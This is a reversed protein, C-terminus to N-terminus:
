VNRAPRARICLAGALMAYRTKRPSGSAKGFMKKHKEILQKAALKPDTLPTMVAILTPEESWTDEIWYGAAFPLFPTPEETFAVSRVCERLWPEVGYAEWLKHM